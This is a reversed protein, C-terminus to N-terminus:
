YYLITYITYYLITYNYQLITYNPFTYLITNITNCQLTSYQLTNAQIPSYNYQLQM